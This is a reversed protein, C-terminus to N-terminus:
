PGVQTKSDTQGVTGRANRFPIVLKYYSLPGGMRSGRGTQAGTDVKTCPPGGVSHCPRRHSGESHM